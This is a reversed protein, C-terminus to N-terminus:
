RERDVTNQFYRTRLRLQVRDQQRDGQLHQRIADRQGAPRLDILRAVQCLRHGDFLLSALPTEGSWSSHVRVEHQPSEQPCLPDAGMTLVGGPLYRLNIELLIPLHLRNRREDEM